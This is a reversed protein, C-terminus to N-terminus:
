SGNKSLLCKEAGDTLALLALDIFKRGNHKTRLVLMVSGQRLKSSLGESLVLKKTELQKIALFPEELLCLIKEDAFRTHLNINHSVKAIM